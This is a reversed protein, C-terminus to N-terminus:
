IGAARMAAMEREVQPAIRPGVAALRSAWKETSKGYKRFTKQTQHAVAGAELNLKQLGHGAKSAVSGALARMSNLPHGLLGASPPSMLTGNTAFAAKQNENQNQDPEATAHGNQGNSNTAAAAAAAAAAQAQITTAAEKDALEKIKKAYGETGKGVKNNAGLTERCHEHYKNEQGFYKTTALEAATLGRNEPQLLFNYRQVLLCNQLKQHDAEWGKHDVRHSFAWAGGMAALVLGGAKAEQGLEGSEMEQHSTMEMDALNKPQYPVPPTLQPLCLVPLAFLWVASLLSSPM